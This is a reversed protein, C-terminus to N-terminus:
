QPAKAHDDSESDSDVPTPDTKPVAQDDPDLPGVTRDGAVSVVLSTVVITILAPLFSIIILVGTGPLSAALISYTIATSVAGLMIPMAISRSVFLIVLMGVVVIAWATVIGDAQKTPPIAMSFLSVVLAGLFVGIAFGSARVVRSGSGGAFGAPLLVIVAGLTASVAIATNADAPLAPLRSVLFWALGVGLVTGVVAAPRHFALPARGPKPKSQATAAEDLAAPDGEVHLQPLLRDLWGPLWWTGKKALVMIAPVLSCRVITADVLVATSLGVGFIKVTSDESLIFSAFVSVMILAASTVLQGTDALGRRVAVRMDDTHAWHERFATLLFVEYDMSLGFLIAFMMMPVYSDIPVPGDLGILQAGWGWQFVMTIVGYAAAISVLNMVAAKFPILLSRYAIMLLFFALVVVGFIFFPTRQAILDMLDNTAATVGGVHSAMSQGNTVSPLVSDRLTRVLDSTQPVSAEWSPNIKIVAVGGDTSVVPSSTYTVGPTAALTKQLQVLRPDLTRPDSSTDNGGTVTVPKGDAGTPATAVTYMQSVIAFPDTAGPGFGAVILDNAQRATTDEPLDGADSTGVQLTLMPAALLLLIITSGIVYHWPHGTVRHALRAWFTKDLAEHDGHVLENDKQKKPVVSQGMLGFLAPVLTLSALMALAVVIGAAYGLWALFGIGTFTLGCVAAILTGGAFVTGAGATGATRGASDAVEYGARLLRRHRTVLFLAYDIGVGLGLMSGLTPAVDPIFVVRGLLAIVSLGIAVAMLANILPIFVAAWRRLTIFLVILAMLLGIIESLHTDPKSIQQGMVGGLAVQNDPGAAKQSTSLVDTAVDEKGVYADAVVVNVIATHHDSSLQSPQDTPTTVVALPPMAKLQRAVENVTAEGQGSGFDTHANYIVVPNAQTSSGPFADGLLAQAEASDTGQLVYNNQGAPGLLNNAGIIAVAALLWIGIM